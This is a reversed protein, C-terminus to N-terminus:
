PESWVVANEYSFAYKKTANKGIQDDVCFRGFVSVFDLFSEFLNSFFLKKFACRKSFAGKRTYHPYTFTFGQFCHSFLADWRKSGDANKPYILFHTKLHFRILTPLLFCFSVRSTHDFINAEDKNLHFRTSKFIYYHSWLRLPKVQWQELFVLFAMPIHSTM